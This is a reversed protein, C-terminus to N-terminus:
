KEILLGMLMNWAESNEIRYCGHDAAEYVCSIEPTGLVIHMAKDGCRGDIEYNQDAMLFPSSVSPIREARLLLLFAKLSAIDVKSTIDILEGNKVQHVTGIEIFDAEKIPAQPTFLITIFVAAFLIIVAAGLCIYKKKKEM